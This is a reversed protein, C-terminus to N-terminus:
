RCLFPTDPDIKRQWSLPMDALHALMQSNPHCIALMNAVKGALFLGDGNIVDEQGHSVDVIQLEFRANGPHKLEIRVKGLLCYTCTICGFAHYFDQISFIPATNIFFNPFFYELISIQLISVTSIFM